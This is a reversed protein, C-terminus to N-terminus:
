RVKGSNLCKSLMARSRHLLYYLASEKIGLRRCIEGTEYGQYRYNLARAYSRNAEGIKRMCDLLRKKLGSDEVAPESPTGAAEEDGFRQNQRKQARFHEIILNDCVRYSWAAFSSTITLRKYERCVILMATQVVEEADKTNRIRQRVFFAFRQHLHDFLLVEASSDGTRVSDYLDNLERAKL